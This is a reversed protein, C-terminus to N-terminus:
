RAEGHKGTVRQSRGKEEWFEEQTLNDQGSEKQEAIPCDAKNNVHLMIWLLSTM